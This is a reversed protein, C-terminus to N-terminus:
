RDLFTAEGSEFPRGDWTLHSASADKGSPLLPVIAPYDGWDGNGALADRYLDAVLENKPLGPEIRELVGDIMRESISAARRMFDLEEDSKITRQWNVLATADVLHAEPLADRLTVYAKASFYYNEMEVGIRRAGYGLDHLLGALHQMPHRETSQVFADSYHTIHAGAMWVTRVAGNADMQRGWWMPDADHFVLVGQHVYFSWGDYGTLWAMNSPDEVFLIDIGKEDMARRVLGLRREYEALSFPARGEAAYGFQVIEETM